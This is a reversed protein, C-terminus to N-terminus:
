AVTTVNVALGQLRFTQYDLVQFGIVCQLIQAQGDKMGRRVPKSVGGHGLDDFIVHPPGEHLM